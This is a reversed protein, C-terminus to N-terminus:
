GKNESKVFIRQVLVILQRALATLRGWLWRAAPPVYRRLVGWLWVGGRRCVALLPPYLPSLLCAILVGLACGDDGVLARMLVAMGGAVVGALAHSGYTPLPIATDGLLVAALVTGGALVGQLPTNWIMWSLVAVTALMCAPALPRLRRRLLLYGAALLLVPVCGEGVAGERIGLFLHLPQYLEPDTLPMLQTTVPATDLPAFLVPLSYSLVRAPFVWRVLTYGAMVAPLVLPVRPLWRATLSPLTAAVAAVAGAVAAVWLPTSASLLLASWAGVALAPAASAKALGLWELLVCVAAYGAAALLALGLAQWRYYLVAILLLPSAATLWDLAREREQLRAPAEATHNM